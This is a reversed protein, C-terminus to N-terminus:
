RSFYFLLVMGFTLAWMLIQLKTIPRLRVEFEAVSTSHSNGHKSELVRKWDTEPIVKFSGGQLSYGTWIFPSFWHLGHEDLSDHLFHGLLSVSTLIMLYVANLHFQYAFVWAAVLGFLILLLPHHGLVRHSHLSLKNRFLLYVLM